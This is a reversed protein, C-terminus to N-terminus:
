HEIIERILDVSAKPVLPYCRAMILTLEKKLKTESAYKGNQLSQFTMKLKEHLDHGNHELYWTPVNVMKHNLYEITKKIERKEKTVSAPFASYFKEFFWDTVKQLFENSENGISQYSYTKDTGTGEFVYDAGGMQMFLVVLYIPDFLFNEISYRENEGHVKVYNHDSSKNKTDWDIIGFSTQNGSKRIAAVVDVVDSCNTTGASSSIFYPKLAFDFAPDENLKNFLTRYYEVDTPSETFVQRHCKYDISLTPIFGTLMKLAADKDIKKLSTEPHNSLQYISEEPCLAVTSPSHTTMIVKIGLKQVFTENLVDVLLKSMQPHLHSDPEDLLILEPYQLHADHHYRSVFLKIILGIIIKEGSSLNDLTVVKGISQKVLEFDINSYPTFDERNIIKFRFDISHKEFIENFIDWPAPNLSDFENDRIASNVQGYEKKQFYNHSNDYRIKLYHYFIAELQSYFLDPTDIFEVGLYTNMFDSETLDEYDKKRYESVIAAVKATKESCGFSQSRFESIIGEELMQEETVDYSIPRRRLIFTRMLSILETKDLGEINNLEPHESVFLDDLWVKNDVLFKAIKKASLEMSRYENIYDRIKQEWIYNGVTALKNSEIGELQIRNISPIFEIKKLGPIQSNTRKEVIEILQSKGSGNEGTIVTFDNLEDSTFSRLSKHEGEFIIKFM